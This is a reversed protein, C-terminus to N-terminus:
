FKKLFHKWWFNSLHVFYMFNLRLWLTLLVIIIIFIRYCTLQYIDGFLRRMLLLYCVHFFILFIMKAVHCVDCSIVNIKAPKETLIKNGNMWKEKAIRLNTRPNQLYTSSWEDLYIDNRCQIVITQCRLRRRINGFSILSVCLSLSLFVLWM